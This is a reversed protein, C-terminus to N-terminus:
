KTTFSEDTVESEKAPIKAVKAEENIVRRRFAYTNM